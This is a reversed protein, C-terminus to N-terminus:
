GCMVHNVVGEDMDRHSMQDKRQNPTKGEILDDRLWQTFNLVGFFWFFFWRYQYTGKPAKSKGLLSCLSPTLELRNYSLRGSPLRLCFLIFSTVVDTRHPHAPTTNQWGTEAQFITMRSTKQLSSAQSNALRLRERLSIVDGASM